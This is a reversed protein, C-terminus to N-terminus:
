GKPPRRRLAEASGLRRVAVVESLISLAIEPATRAGIALGVPAHIRAIRGADFGAEELRAVRKAHTRTSGLAGIYFLPADLALTLAPDDLKPDHTLALLASAPDLGIEPLVDEPWAIRATVGPFRDPTLFAGRPDVVVMDYGVAAAMPALAQAIHVAGIVILRPRPAFVNVFWRRGEAEVNTAQDQRIADLAADRVTAPLAAGMDGGDTAVLATTAADDLATVLAVGRRAARDEAIRRILTADM